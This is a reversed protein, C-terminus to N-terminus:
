YVLSEVIKIISDIDENSTFLSFGKITRVTEVGSTVTEERGSIKREFKDLISSTAKTASKPLVDKTLSVALDILAKKGLNGMM